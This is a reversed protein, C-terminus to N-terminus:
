GGNYANKLAAIDLKKMSLMARMVRQVRAIDYDHLMKSLIRPVVQWSVGFKDKVWGCQQNEDGNGSSLKKTYYDIEEQTDCYVQLSLTENFKVHPGGNLAIFEQGDLFFQITMGMAAMGHIEQGENSYRNIMGIHSNKFICTYFTVAEEARRDFWLTPVIRQSMEM